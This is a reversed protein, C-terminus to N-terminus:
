LHKKLQYKNHQILSDAAALINKTSRYNQELKITKCYPFDKAFNLINSIDAGRWKYISQADDGVICINQRHKALQNVIKYQVKNTDQYEDILIYHFKDQYKELISQINLARLMNILIDDFDMANNQQLTKQYEIYCPAVTREFPNFANEAYETPLILKNKASSIASYISSEKIDKVEISGKKISRLVRHADDVDYITFNRDYGIEQAETRLIRAFV